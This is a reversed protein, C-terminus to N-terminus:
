LREYRPDAKIVKFRSHECTECYFLQLWATVQQKFINKGTSMWAEGQPILTHFCLGDPETNLKSTEPIIKKTM